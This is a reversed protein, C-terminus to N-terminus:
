YGHHGKIELATYDRQIKAMANNLVFEMAGLIFVKYINKEVLELLAEFLDHTAVRKPAPYGFM